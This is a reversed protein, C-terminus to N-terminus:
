AYKNRQEPTLFTMGLKTFIDKETATPILTGDSKYLGYENLVLSRNKANQRMITNLQFPGTFYLKAAALSNYPVLRIDLRRVSYNNYKFFGMYKTKYNKDTLSDLILGEKELSEVIQYLLETQSLDEVLVIDPHWLLIDIDSSYANNRRYSGCVMLKIKPDIGAMHKKLVPITASIEEYPITTDLIDYYKLGMKVMNSVKITGKNIADRLQQINCIGQKIMRIAGKFGIGIVQVLEQVSKFKDPVPEDLEKLTGTKLIESVRRLTAEGLDPIYKLQDADEIIFDLKKLTSVIKRTSNLRYFEQNIKETNNDSLVTLYRLKNRELIDKFIDVILKNM